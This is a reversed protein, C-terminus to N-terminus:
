RMRFYVIESGDDDDDDQAALRLLICIERGTWEQRGWGGLGCRASVWGLVCVSERATEGVRRGVRVVVGVLVVTVASLYGYQKYVRSVSM